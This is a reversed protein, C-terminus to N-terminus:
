QKPEPMKEGPSTIAWEELPVELRFRHNGSPDIRKPAEFVASNALPGEAIDDPAM